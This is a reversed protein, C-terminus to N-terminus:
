INRAVYPSLNKMGTNVIGASNISYDTVKNYDASKCGTSKVGV